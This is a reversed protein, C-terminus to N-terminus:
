SADPAATSGRQRKPPTHATTCSILAVWATQRGLPPASALHPAWTSTGFAIGYPSPGWRGRAPATRTSSASFPTSKSPSTGNASRRATSETPSASLRAGPPVTTRTSPAPESGEVLVAGVDLLPARTGDSGRLVRARGARRLLRRVGISLAAAPHVRVRPHGREAGVDGLHEFHRKSATRGHRHRTGSRGGPPASATSSRSVCPPQSGDAGSVVGGDATGAGAARRRPARRRKPRVARRRSSPREGLRAAVRRRRRARGRGRARAAAARNTRTPRRRRTRRASGRRARHRSCRGRRTCPPRRPGRRRGGGGNRRRRSPPRRRLTSQRSASVCCHLSPSPM